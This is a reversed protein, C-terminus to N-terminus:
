LLFLFLVMELVKLNPVSNLKNTFIVDIKEKSINLWKYCTFIV